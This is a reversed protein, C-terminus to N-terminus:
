EAYKLPQQGPVIEHVVDIVLTGQELQWDTVRYMQDMVITDGKTGSNGCPREWNEPSAGLMGGGIEARTHSYIAEANWFDTIGGTRPEGRNSVHGDLFGGHFRVVIRGAHLPM